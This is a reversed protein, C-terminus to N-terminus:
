LGFRLFGLILLHAPYFIYFFWKHVPNRSGGEGNYFFQILLPVMFIGLQFFADWYQGSFICTLCFYAAVICFAGWKKWNETRFRFFILAFLVDYIGWDGYESIKCLILIGAIRVLIPINKRDFLWIAALSIFLTYIVGFYLYVAATMNLSPMYIDLVQGSWILHGANVRIPACGFEFYVFPGWSLIAFVALRLLYKRVNKTYYYGEALFYAMTPGTLRGIWHMVQGLVSSTPVFAWAIHDILMAIIVLYKLQNRNLSIKQPM